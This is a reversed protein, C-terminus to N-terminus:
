IWASTHHTSAIISKIKVSELIENENTKVTITLDKMFNNKQIKCEFIVSILIYSYTDVVLLVYCWTFFNYSLKCHPHQPYWPDSRMKKNPNNRKSDCLICQLCNYQQLFKCFLHYSKRCHSQVIRSQFIDFQFQGIQCYSMQFLMKNYLTWFKCEM